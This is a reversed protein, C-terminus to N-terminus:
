PTRSRGPPNWRRILNSAPAYRDALAIAGKALCLVILIGITDGIIMAGLAAQADLPRSFLFGQYEDCGFERLM